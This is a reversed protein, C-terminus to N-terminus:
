FRQQPEGLDGALNKKATIKKERFVGGARGLGGPMGRKRAVKRGKKRALVFKERGQL